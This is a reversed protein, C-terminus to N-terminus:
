ELYRNTYAIADKRNPDQADINHISMYDLVEQVWNYFKHATSWTTDANMKPPMPVKPKQNASLMGNEQNFNDVLPTWRTASNDNRRGDDDDESDDDSGPESSDGPDSDPNNGGNNNDHQSYEEVM